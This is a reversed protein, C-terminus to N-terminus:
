FDSSLNLIDDLDFDSDDDSFGMLPTEYMSAKFILADEFQFKEHLEDCLAEAEEFMGLKGMCRALPFMIQRTEPFTSDLEHLLEMAESYAEDRYLVDAKQFKERAETQTMSGPFGEWM